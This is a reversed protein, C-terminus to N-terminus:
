APPQGGCLVPQQADSHPIKLRCKQLSNMQCHCDTNVGVAVIVAVSIIHHDRRVKVYTPLCGGLVATSTAASTALLEPLRIFRLLPLKQGTGPCCTM